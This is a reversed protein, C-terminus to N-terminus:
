RTREEALPNTSDALRQVARRADDREKPTSHDRREIERLTRQLRQVTRRDANGAARRAEAILARYEAAVAANLQRRLARDQQKSGAARWTWAQGGAGAVEEALGAVAKTTEATAPLAVLGDVLQVVGLRRLKRWLTVRPASPERPM